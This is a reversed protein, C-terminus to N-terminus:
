LGRRRVALTLSVAALLEVGGIVTTYPLNGGSALWGGEINMFFLGATVMLLSTVLVGNFINIAVKSEAGVAM